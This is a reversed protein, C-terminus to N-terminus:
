IYYRFFMHDIYGGKIHTPFNVLNTFGMEELTMWPEKGMHELSCLNFDGCVITPKEKICNKMVNLFNSISAERSRYVSIVDLEESSLVTIQYFTEKINFQFKFKEKKYYTALGKGNGVSNFIVNYEDLNLDTNSDEQLWTESLCIIDAFMFISDVRFDKFHCNISRINFCAVKVNHELNQEWLPPNRNISVNELRQNEMLAEQDAYIKNIPLFNLIYLQNLAEVRSLMTYAQAAQFVSNLDNTSKNPKKITQGQFKHATAAFSLTIPFQIIKALNTGSHTRKGISYQFMIREIPTCGPFTQSIKPCSERKREGQHKEDFKIMISLIKGRENRVFGIVEGRTGNTLCDLTDINYTLMVRSGVKLNLSQLLPTGKVMGKNDILPKYNKITPHMNVAEFNQEEALIMKLRKSNFDSVIKNKGAIFMSGKLEKHNAPRVRKKLMEYDEITQKGVRIRNLLEAYAFDEGQRHNKELTIVEFAPWHIGLSYSLHFDENIPKKFIYRGKCPKLQLIDGFVFLSVGGFIKDPKQKVERLHLDLQFLQDSKIMSIEDLIIMELNELAKRKKDRVKDSLSRYDNGFSFGFASHLTQGRVNAAATGTPACVIVYPCDPNDGPKQFNLHIWQKLINIVTSKGSGAGGHVMVLPPKPPKTKKNLSKM